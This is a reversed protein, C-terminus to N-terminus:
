LSFGFVDWIGFMHMASLIILGLGILKYLFYTGGLGARLHREAWSVQGFIQVLAFSKWVILVGIVVGLLGVIFRM